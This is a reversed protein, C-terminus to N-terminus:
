VHGEVETVEVWYNTDNLISLCQYLSGHMSSTGLVYLEGYEKKVPEEDITFVDGEHLGRICRFVRGKWM